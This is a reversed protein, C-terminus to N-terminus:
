IRTQKTKLPTQKIKIIIVGSYRSNNKGERPDRTDYKGRWSSMSMITQNKSSQTAASKKTKQKKRNRSKQRTKDHRGEAQREETSGDGLCIMPSITGAFLLRTGEPSPRRGARMSLSTQKPKREKRKKREQEEQGNISM